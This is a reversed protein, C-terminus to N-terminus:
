SKPLVLNINYTLVIPLKSDKALFNPAVLWELTSFGYREFFIHILLSNNKYKSGDRYANQQVTLTVKRNRFITSRFIGLFSCPLPYIDKHIIWSLM